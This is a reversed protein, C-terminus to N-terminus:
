YFNIYENILIACRMAHEIKRNDLLANTRKERSLLLYFEYSDRDFSVIPLESVIKRKGAGTQFEPHVTGAM